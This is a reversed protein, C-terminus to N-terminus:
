KRAELIDKLEDMFSNVDKFERYVSAFRVYAVEDIEKLREMAMEGIRSSLVERDMTNLIGTQIADAAQELQAISIPRKDCARMLGALLKGRDFAQRSKDKKVVMVPTTEVIEYSTFRKECGLCERRRRIKSGEDTPRSDIVKSESFFCFPCKLAADV